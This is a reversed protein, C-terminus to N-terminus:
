INEKYYTILDYAADIFDDIREDKYFCDLDTGVLRNIFSARNAIAENVEKKFEEFTMHKNMILITQNM